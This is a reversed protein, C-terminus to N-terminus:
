FYVFVRWTVFSLAHTGQTWRSRTAFVNRSALRSLVKACIDGKQWRTVPGVTQGLSGVLISPRKWARRTRKMAPNETRQKVFVQTIKKKQQEVAHIQLKRKTQQSCSEDKETPGNKSKKGVFDLWCLACLLSFNGDFGYRKHVMDYTKGTPKKKAAHCLQVDRFFAAKQREWRGLFLSLLSRFRKQFNKQKHQAVFFTGWFLCRM